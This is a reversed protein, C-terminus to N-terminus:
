PLTHEGISPGKSRQVYSQADFLHIPPASQVGVLRSDWPTRWANKVRVVVVVRKAPLHPSV